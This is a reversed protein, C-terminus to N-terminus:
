SGLWALGAQRGTVGQDRRHSFFLVPNCSTCLRADLIRESPIGTQELRNRIELPLDLRGDPSAGAPLADLVEDGVEYCCPGIGPGLAASTAALMSAAQEIIGGAVGRWGCHLVAVAGGGALVVPVCDAVLVLPTLEASRTLQGDSQRIEGDTSDRAQITTGHVQRGMLLGEPRRGLARFLRERNGRVCAPDDETLIGLNLSRFPGESIGGLRTSFAAVAGDLEVELWRIDGDM